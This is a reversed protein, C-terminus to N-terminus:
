EWGYIWVPQRLDGSLRISAKRSVPRGHEILNAQITFAHGTLDTLLGLAEPEPNSDEQAHRMAIIRAATEADIGPLALLVEAPAVAPDIGGLQSVVTIAPKLREYLEPTMGMVLRLEDISLFLGGRPGYAYGALSYDEQKAGSLRRLDGGERWDLIRDTEAQAVDPDIGTAALLRLLLSAPAVNLDIKGAEDQVRLTITRGEIDIVFPTGDLPPHVAPDRALLRYIAANIGADALAAGQAVTARIRSTRVDSRAMVMISAATLALMMAAWLASVLAFGRQRDRSTM